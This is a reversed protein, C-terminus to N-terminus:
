IKALIKHDGNFAYFRWNGDTGRKLIYPVELMRMHLPEKFNQIDYTEHVVIACTDADIYNKQIVQYSLLKEKINRQIYPYVEKYLPSDYVVYDELYMYNNSNIADVFGNLYKGVADEIETAGVRNVAGAMLIKPEYTHSSTGGVERTQIDVIIDRAELTENPDSIEYELLYLEKQQRYIRNYIEELDGVNRINIYFGNTNTALNSLVGEDISDGIGIIFVPIGYRSAADLVHAPTTTSNNDMGDTFAIVCKAGNQVATKNVAALLADYLSTMNGLQLYDIEDRIAQKDNTFEELTYVGDSFATLEVKDGVGFQVNELFNSMVYKASEIPGGQMSGSVDAVMNINLSEHQNLQMVKTIQKKMYESDHSLKESLYFFEQGLGAPVQDTLTDKINLYLKVKPYESTDVQDILIQLNDHEVSIVRYIEELLALKQKADVFNKKGILSEIDVILTEMEKLESERARTSDGQRLEQLMKALEDKNKTAVEQEFVSIKDWFGEIEDIEKNSIIDESQRILKEYQELEDDLIYQGFAAKHEELEMAFSTITELELQERKAKQQVVFFTAGVSSIALVLILSIVVVIFKKPKQAEKPKKGAVEKNGSLKAGCGTCFVGEESNKQGCQECFM